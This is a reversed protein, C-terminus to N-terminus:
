DRVIIAPTQILWLYMYEDIRHNQAIALASAPTHGHFSCPKLTVYM